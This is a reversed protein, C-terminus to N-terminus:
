TTHPASLRELRPLGNMNVNPEERSTSAKLSNDLGKAWQVMSVSRLTNNGSVYM